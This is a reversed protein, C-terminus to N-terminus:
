VTVPTPQKHAPSQLRSPAKSARWAKWFTTYEFMAKSFRGGLGTVNDECINSRPIALHDCGTTWAGRATTVALKFGADALM